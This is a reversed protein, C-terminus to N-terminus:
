EAVVSSTSATVTPLVNSTASATITSTTSDTSVSLTVLLQAETSMSTTTQLTDDTSLSVALVTPMISETSVFTSVVPITETSTPTPIQLTAEASAPTVPPPVHIAEGICMLKGLTHYGKETQAGTDGFRLQSVPLTSKDSLFGSDELWESKESDCNCHFNPNVCSLDRACACSGSDPAAGGWYNMKSGDRSVWWGKTGKLLAAEFCEFKIFQRCEASITVLNAIQTLSAGTYTVDKQYSGAREHGDVLTRAESDHSIVTVANDGYMTMNCYVEFPEEGVGDGDPDIFYHGSTDRKPQGSSNVQRSKIDRCSPLAYVYLTISEELTRFSNNATCNYSGTHSLNASAIFLTNDPFIEIGRSYKMRWGLTPKLDSDASCPLTLSDGTFIYIPGLPPLVTFQLLSHVLLKVAPSTINGVESTATCTYNGSNEPVVELLFLNGQNVAAEVPLTGGVKSWTIVPKPFGNALCIFTVNQQEEVTNSVPVSQFTPPVPDPSLILKLVTM